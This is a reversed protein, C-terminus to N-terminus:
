IDSRWERMESISELTAPIDGILRIRLSHAVKVYDGGQNLYSQSIISQLQPCDASLRGVNTGFAPSSGDSNRIALSHMGIM